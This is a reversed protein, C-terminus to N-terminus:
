PFPEPDRPSVLAVKIAAAPRSSRRSASVRPAERSTVSVGPAGCLEPPTHTTRGRPSVAGQAGTNFSSGDRSGSVGGRCGGLSPFVRERRFAAGPQREAGNAARLPSARRAGRAGRGRRGHGPGGRVPRPERTRRGGDAGRPLGAVDGRGRRWARWTQGPDQGEVAQRRGTVRRKCRSPGCTPKALVGRGGRKRGM